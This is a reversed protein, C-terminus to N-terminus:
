FRIGVTLLLSIDQVDSTRQLVDSFTYAWELRVGAHFLCCRCPIEVDTHAAAYMAGIVDTLHGFTNLAVSQSGWRGGADVGVRWSRGGSGAPHWLYWERGCGLGVLTRNSDHLSFQTIGMQGEFTFQDSRQGKHFFTLPFETNRKGASENTNIIHLDVVWARTQPENFFLAKAGGVISWGTKLERSLTMGGVPFSPGGNLYLETYLPTYRGPSGECCDRKYLVWDSLGGGAPIEPEKQAETTADPVIPTPPPFIPQAGSYQGFAASGSLWAAMIMVGILRNTKM